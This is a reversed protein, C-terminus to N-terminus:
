AWSLSRPTQVCQVNTHSQKIVRVCTLMSAVICHSARPPWACACPPWVCACRRRGAAQVCMGAPVSGGCPAPSAILDVYIPALVANICCCGWCFRHEERVMTHWVCSPLPGAIRTCHITSCYVYHTCLLVSCYIPASSYLLLFEEAHLPRPLIVLVVAGHHSGPAASSVGCCAQM